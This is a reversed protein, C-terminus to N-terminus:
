VTPIVAPGVLLERYMEVGDVGSMVRHQVIRYRVGDKMIYFKETFNGTGSKYSAYIKENTIVKAVCLVYEDNIDVSEMIYDEWRVRENKEWGDALWGGGGISTGNNIVVVTQNMYEAPYAM